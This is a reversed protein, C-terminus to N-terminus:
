SGEAGFYLAVKKETATKEEETADRPILRVVNPRQVQTSILKM